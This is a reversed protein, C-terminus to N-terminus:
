RNIPHSRSDDCPSGRGRFLRCLWWYIGGLGLFAAIAVVAWAPSPGDLRVTVQEWWPVLLMMLLLVVGFAGLHAAILRPPTPHAAAERRLAQRHRLFDATDALWSEPPPAPAEGPLRGGPRPAFLLWLASNIAATFLADMFDGVRCSLEEFRPLPPPLRDEAPRQDSNKIVRREQRSTM